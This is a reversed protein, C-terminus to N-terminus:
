HDFQVINSNKSGIEYSDFVIVKYIYRYGPDIKESYRLTRYGEKRPAKSHIPIEAVAEFRVPCNECKIEEASLVSRFVKISAPKSANGGAIAPHTWSLEVIDGHIAYRLDEVAPPLPRKPPRPPGKKGCGLWVFSIGGITVLLWVLWLRQLYLRWNQPERKFM